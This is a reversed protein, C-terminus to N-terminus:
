CSGVLQLKWESSIGEFSTRETVTGGDRRRMRNPYWEQQVPALDWASM